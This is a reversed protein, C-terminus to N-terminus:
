FWEEPINKLTHEHLSFNGGFNDVTEIVVELLTDKERTFILTPMQYIELARIYDRNLRVNNALIATIGNDDLSQIHHLATIDDIAKEFSFTALDELFGYCHRVMHWGEFMNEWLIMARVTQYDTELITNEHVSGQITCGSQISAIDLLRSTYAILYNVFNHVVSGLKLEPIRGPKCMAPLAGNVVYTDPNISYALAMAALFEAFAIVALGYPTMPANQGSFPMTVLMVPIQRAACEIFIELRESSTLFLTSEFVSHITIIYFGNQVCQEAAEVGKRTSVNLFTPKDFIRTMVDFQEVEFQSLQRACVYSFPMEKNKALLAQKSIDSLTPSKLQGKREDPDLIYGATGGPGFSKDYVPFDFRSTQDIIDQIYDPEFHIRATVPDQIIGYRTGKTFRTIMSRYDPHMGGDKSHPIRIGCYLLVQKADYILNRALRNWLNEPVIRKYRKIM